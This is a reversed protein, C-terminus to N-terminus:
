NVKIASNIQAARRRGQARQALLHDLDKRMLKPDSLERVKRRFEVFSMGPEPGFGDYIEKLPDPM